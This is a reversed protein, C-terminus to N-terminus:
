LDLKLQPAGDSTRERTAGKPGVVCQLRRRFNSFGDFRVVDVAEDLELSLRAWGPELLQVSTVTAAFPQGLYTGRVRQGASWGPAPRDAITARLTNWDRYGYDQAIRELAQAHSIAEGHAAERQRLTRAMEKAKELGPLPRTM